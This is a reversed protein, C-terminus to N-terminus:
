SETQDLSGAVELGSNNVYEGDYFIVAPETIMQAPVHQHDSLPRPLPRPAPSHGFVSM